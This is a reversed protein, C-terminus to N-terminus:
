GPVGLASLLTVHRNPYEHGVVLRHNAAGQRPQQVQLAVNLDDGLSGVPGAGELFQRAQCCRAARGACAFCCRSSPEDM